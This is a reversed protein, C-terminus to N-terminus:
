DFNPNEELATGKYFIVCEDTVSEDFVVRLTVQTKEKVFTHDSVTCLSVDKEVGNIIATTTRTRTIFGTANYVDEDKKMTFDDTAFSYEVGAKFKVAAYNYGDYTFGYEGFYGMNFEDESTDTCSFLSACILIICVFVALTRKM